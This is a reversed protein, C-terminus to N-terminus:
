TQSLEEFSLKLKVANETSELVDDPSIFLDKEPWERRVVFKKVEGTSLNRALHDVTGLVKGNGDIVEAGLELIM